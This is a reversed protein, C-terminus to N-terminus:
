PQINRGGHDRNNDHKMAVPEKSLWGQDEKVWVRYLM